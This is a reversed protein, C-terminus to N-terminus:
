LCIAIPRDQSSPLWLIAGRLLDMGIQANATQGQPRVLPKEVHIARGGLLLEGPQGFAGEVAQGSVGRGTGEKAAVAGDYVAPDIEFHKGGTNILLRVPSGAFTAEAIPWRSEDGSAVVSAMVLPASGDPCAAPRDPEGRLQLGRLDVVAYGDDVLLQPALFGGINWDVFPPPGDIVLARAAHVTRYGTIEVAAARDLRWSRVAAGGHDTGPAAPVLDAEDFRLSPRTFVHDSTGSDLILRTAQGDVSADVFATHITHLSGDALPVEFSLTAAPGSAPGPPGEPSTPSSSACGGAVLLGLSLAWCLLTRSM